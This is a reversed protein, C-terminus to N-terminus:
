AAAGPFRQLGKELIRNRFSIGDGAGDDGHLRETIEPSVIRVGVDEHRIAPRSTNACGSGPRASPANNRISCCRRAPFVGSPLDPHRWGRSKSTFYGKVLLFLGGISGGMSLLAKDFFDFM